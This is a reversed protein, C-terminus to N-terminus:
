SVKQTATRVDIQGTVAATILAARRERALAIHEEAKAILADIRSTQEDLHRVIQVQEGIPPISIEISALNAISIRPLGAGRTFMRTQETVPRSALTYNLFSSSMVSQIPSIIILSSAVVFKHDTEVVATTGVTGDKSFLVDGRRPQCGTRVMYS